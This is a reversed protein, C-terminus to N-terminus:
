RLRDLAERTADLMSDNASHGESRLREFIDVAVEYNLRAHPVDFAKEYLSGRIFHCEALLNRDVDETTVTLLNVARNFQDLADQPKGGALQARGLGVWARALHGAGDGAIRHFPEIFTVARRFTSEASHANEAEIYSFGQSLYPLVEIQPDFAAGAARAEGLFVEAERAAELAAAPEGLARYSEATWVLATVVAAPDFTAGERWFRTGYRVVQAYDAIAEHMLGGEERAVARALVADLLRQPTPGEAPLAALRAIAEAFVPEAEELRGLLRLCTAQGVRAWAATPATEAQADAETVVREFVALAAAPDGRLQGEAAALEAEWASEEPSLFVPAPTEAVPAAEAAPLRLTFEEAAQQLYEVQYAIQDPPLVDDPLFLDMQLGVEGERVGTPRILPYEDAFRLWAQWLPWSATQQLTVLPQTQMQLVHAEEAWVVRIRLRQAGRDDRVVQTDAEVWLERPAITRVHCGAETLAAFIDDM